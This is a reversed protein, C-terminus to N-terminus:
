AKCAGNGDAFIEVFVCVVLAPLNSLEVISSLLSKQKREKKQLCGEEDEDEKCLQGLYTRSPTSGMCLM